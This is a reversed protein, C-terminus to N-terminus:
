EGFKNVAKKLIIQALAEPLVDGTNEIVLDPAEPFEPPLDLGVVDQTREKEIGSYLEKQNRQKLIEMPVKIYVEMYKEIHNRNWERVQHFMSITCCIVDLGQASLMECLRAYRMACKLREERTYGLDSGFVVRLEDGDLFVVPMKNKSYVAQIKRGISTKGAGSLGTLWYVKGTQKNYEM